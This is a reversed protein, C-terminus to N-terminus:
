VGLQAVLRGVAAVGLGGNIFCLRDAPWLNRFGVRGPQPIPQGYGSLVPTNRRKFDPLRLRSEEPRLLSLVDPRHARLRLRSAFQLHNRGFFPGNDLVIAELLGRELAIRDLVRRVRLEGLSTDVEIAPSERTCEDVITLLRIVKGSDLADSVTRAGARISHARRPTRQHPCFAPRRSHPFHTCFHTCNTRQERRVAHSVHSLHGGAEGCTTSVVNELLKSEWESRVM